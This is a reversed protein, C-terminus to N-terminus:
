SLSDLLDDLDIGAVTRTQKQTTPEAEVNTVEDRKIIIPERSDGGKDDTKKFDIVQDLDVVTEPIVEVKEPTIFLDEPSDEIPLGALETELEKEMSLLANNGAERWVEAEKEEDQTLLINTAPEESQLIEEIDIPATPDVTKNEKLTPVAEEFSDKNILSKQFEEMLGRVAPDDGHPTGLKLQAEMIRLQSNIAKNTSNLNKNKLQAAKQVSNLVTLCNEYDKIEEREKKLMSNVKAERDRISPLAKIEDDQSLLWEKQNEYNSRANNLAQQVTAIEQSVEIIFHEVEELFSHCTGIRSNIYNPDPIVRSEINIKMALLRDCIEKRRADNM